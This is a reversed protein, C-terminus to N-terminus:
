LNTKVNSGFFFNSEMHIAQLDIIANNKQVTPNSTEIM